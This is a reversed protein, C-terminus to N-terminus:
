DSQVCNQWWIRDSESLAPPPTPQTYDIRLDYGAREYIGEFISQMEVIPALNNGKLPLPFSPIPERLSFGYLIAQPRKESPSVLIHYHTKSINGGLSMARGGRLLDIEVLHTLSALITLRKEEYKHRGVGAQKNKPSLVEIVTVVEGTAVERIELYREKIEKPMPVTVQQPQTKTATTAIANNDIPNLETPISSQSSFVLADPIGVLVENEETSFYIRTEIEVYYQPRIQPAIADAIAVILRSHFASWFLPQELYPNMGPLPSRM